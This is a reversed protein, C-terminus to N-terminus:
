QKASLPFVDNELLLKLLSSVMRSLFPSFIKVPFSLDTILGM